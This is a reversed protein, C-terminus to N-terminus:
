TVTTICFPHGAPDLLVRWRPDPQPHVEIAGLSLARATPKDLYPGASLDLHVISTGPWTPPIYPTVRQAVLTAGHVQAGASDANQWLLEGGLLDLYFAVLASPDPCDLSLGVVHLEDRDDSPVGHVSDALAWRLM